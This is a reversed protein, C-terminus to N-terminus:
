AQNGAQAIRAWIALLCAFGILGVGTTANSLSLLGGIGALVSLILLVVGGPAISAKRVTQSDVSPSSSPAVDVAM